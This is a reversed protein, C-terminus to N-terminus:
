EHEFRITRDHRRMVLVGDEIALPERDFGAIGIDNAEFRFVIRHGGPKLAYPKLPVPYVPLDPVIAAVTKGAPVRLIGDEDLEVYAFAAEGAYSVAITLPSGQLLDPDNLAVHIAGDASPADTVVVFRPPKPRPETTLFVKGDSETWRGQAQEDLAGYSLAYRFRGDAGLLLRAAIETQSGDYIGPRAAADVRSLATIAVLFAFVSSAFSKKMFHDYWNPVGNLM